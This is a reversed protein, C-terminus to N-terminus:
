QWQEASHSQGHCTLTCNGRGPTSAPTYTRAGTVNPGFLITDSSLQDPAVRVAITDLHKFHNQAGPKAQTMDHCYDCATNHESPNAHRGTADNYQTATSVVKHCATCQTASNLTGAVWGPTTQGGHCSVNSCTLSAKTFAIAGGSQSQFVADMSVPAPGAPAGNRANANTYHTSTGAGSGAHCADCRLATPLAMHKAHAGATSPFAPGGPGLPLGPAGAHCSLCTGAQTGPAVPDALRHCVSCLPAGAAPSAGSYAHCTSCDAAFVAATANLHGNGAADTLGALFPVPHPALEEGHCLTANFCGPQTGAPAPSAPHGAPNLGSGALHCQACVTANSPDSTAHTLVSGGVARWPRSPHPAPIGHCSACAQASSGGSFDKGHCIGCSFFSGGSVDGAALKARRGHVAPDAFDPTSQHHCGSTMCTPVGSGVKLISIEHCRACASVDAVAEAGHAKQGRAGDIWGLPHYNGYYQAPGAAGKGGCAALVLLGALAIGWGRLFAGMRTLCGTIHM